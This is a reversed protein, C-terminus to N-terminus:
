VKPLLNYWFELMAGLMPNEQYKIIDSQPIKSNVVWYANQQYLYVFFTMNVLMENMQQFYKVVVSQNTATSGTLYENVMETLNNYQTSMGSVNSVPNSSSNFWSPFYGYAGAIRNNENPWAMPGVYDTPYPYDPTWLNYTIAAPNQGPVWFSVLEAHTIPQVVLSAGPIIQSIYSGWTTAGATNVSDGALVTLPINLPKGRYLVNGSSGMTLGDAAFYPSNEFATWNQKAWTLDFQPVSVGAAKLDSISQAGLVGAPLMGAYPAGFTTNYIGNGVQKDLYYTENYADAFARRVQISDFFSQPVNAGPFTTELLTQNINVNFTYWYINLTPFGTVTVVGSKELGQVQYWDSSPIGASVAYGSKLQLYRTTESSIYEIIVTKIAAKPMWQNGGNGPPNYTPNATLVVESGPITYAIEYPGSAMVNNVLYSIYDGANGHAQYAKFDAANWGIGGGHSQVWKAETVQVGGEEDLIQYALSPAMPTQFHFTINNTANNWTINQTINWFSNSSYYNGPLLYQAIIWASTGPSGSVFLLTRVFSFAVDWATVPSGDQFTANSRLHFTYNEYPQLSVKYSGSYGAVAPNVTVTYNAWNTNIGGNTTTPLYAALYPFFDTSSSGNYGVLTAMTNKVIEQSIADYEIAPDLTYYGGSAYEASVLTAGVTGTVGSYISATKFVPVDQYYATNFVGSSTIVAGSTKNVAATYTALKIQYYGASVTLNYLSDTLPLEYLGSTSNFHYPLSVNSVASGNHTVTLSQKTVQYSTNGPPTFYALLLSLTTGPSYVWSNNIIPATSASQLAVDGFSSTSPLASSEASVGIPILEKNSTFTGGPFNVVFYVYYNGPSSYTHSLTVTDSGNYSILQPLGDGWYFNMSTFKGNTKVSINYPTNFQAVASASTISASSGKTTSPHYYVLTGAIASIIVVVVVIVVVWKMRSPGSKKPVIPKSIPIPQGERSDSSM